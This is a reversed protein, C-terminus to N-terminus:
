AVGRHDKHHPRALDTFGSQHLRQNTLHASFVPFVNGQTGDPFVTTTFGVFLKGGGSYTHAITSVGVNTVVTLADVLDTVTFDFGQTGDPFVTTTIGVSATGGTVYSHPITSAGVNIILSSPSPVSLIEIPM